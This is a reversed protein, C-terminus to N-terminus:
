SVEHGTRNAFFAFGVAEAGGFAFFDAGNTTAGLAFDGDIAWGIARIEDGGVAVFVTM